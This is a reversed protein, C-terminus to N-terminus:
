LPENLAKDIIEKLDTSLGEHSQVTRLAMYMMSALRPEYRRWNELSRALRSAVHPNFRDVALVTDIWLQYGWGDYTHFEPGGNKFFAGFLSYISNPNKRSFNANDMLNRIRTVVRMEGKQTRLNSHARLWKNRLLPDSNWEIEAKSLLESSVPLSTEISINLAALKDTLNNAYTFLNRLQQVSKPIQAAGLYSLCLLKLARKGADIHNPEYEGSTENYKAKDEFITKLRTGIKGKLTDLALRILKPEIVSRHEAVAAESPLTLVEARYAPSLKENQLIDEFTLLFDERPSIDLKGHKRIESIFRDIEIFSLREFADARNFLDSDHLALHMLQEESYDVLFNVPASFDRGISLVPEETIDEFIWTEEPERLLFTRTTGGDTEEGKLRLPFDNGFRDVLGMKIPIMLPEPAPKGPFKRNSQKLRLSYTHTTPEWKGEAFVSPTGAQSYWRDFQELDVGNSEAMAIRFDDCTAATGDFRNIYERLGRKFGDKGFMTQYMRVVEAGKEYVTTTYFNDISQYSEPRVPHAMPGADEAFQTQRLARVDQIRKVAKASEDGLMDATFEQERFVTLGEKLSLQFWDRCTVRDGTWNHFYEHAITAEIHEFDRDTAVEPTALICQSNFINLGKNEMAGMNFDDTAVIMFRDLDLELDFRIEDWRIAKILSQMAFQTKDKNKPETWIQLLAEKGNRLKIKEELAVFNGAVLAFLYSPKPFPDKWIAYSRGDPLIGSEELNGNSLLVKYEKPARIVVRFKSLVDPRDPYYTIRRFGQAECQTIYNGNSMYLGSLEENTKPNLTTIIEIETRDVINHIILKGPELNFQEPGVDKGNIKLRDLTIAEGDLVLDNSTREDRPSVILKSTVKTRTPVLDFILDTYEIDHNPAVYSERLVTETKM